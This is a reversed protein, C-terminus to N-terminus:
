SYFNFNLFLNVDSRKFLEHSEVNIFLYLDGSTGGRSGAKVLLDLKQEM